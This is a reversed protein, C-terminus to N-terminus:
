FVDEQNFIYTNKETKIMIFPPKEPNLCLEAMGYGEVSFSGKLLTEMGTGWVRSCSPLQDLVQTEIVQDRDFRYTTWAQSVAVTSGAQMVRIPSLEEVMLWGGLLPLSLLLLGSIVAMIKGAPKAYNM